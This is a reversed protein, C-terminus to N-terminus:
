VHLNKVLEDLFVWWGLDPCWVMVDSDKRMIWRLVPSTSKRELEFATGDPKLTNGEPIM